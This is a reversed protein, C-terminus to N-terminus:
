VETVNELWAFVNTSQLLGACNKHKQYCFSSLSNLLVLNCTFFLLKGLMGPGHNHERGTKYFVGDVSKMRSGCSLRELHRCKFYVM